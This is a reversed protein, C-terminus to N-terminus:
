QKNVTVSADGLQLPTDWTIDVGESDMGEIYPQPSGSGSSLVVPVPKSKDSESLCYIHGDDSPDATSQGAV